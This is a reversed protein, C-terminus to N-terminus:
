RQYKGMWEASQLVHGQMSKELEQRSSDPKLGSSRDLAYLRFFYRHRAGPPPCPGGYGPKGFDNLGEKAGGPLAGTKSAGEPLASASPPLDYLIWHTWTGGPADPDDAILAFGQTGAPPQSWSLQPSVDAGDCTFERPVDGGNPFSGSSIALGMHRTGPGPYSAFEYAGGRSPVFALRLAFFLVAAFFIAASIRKASAM